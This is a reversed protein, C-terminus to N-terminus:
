RFQQFRLYWTSHTDCTTRMAHYDFVCSFGFDSVKVHDYTPSTPDPSVFLLNEPTLDRHVNGINHLHVLAEM